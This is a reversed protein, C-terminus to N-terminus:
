SGTRTINKSTLLFSAYMQMTYKLQLACAAVLCNQTDEGCFNLIFGFFALYHM